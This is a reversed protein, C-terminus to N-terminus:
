LCQSNYAAHVDTLVGAGDARWFVHATKLCIWGGAVFVSANPGDRRRWEPSFKEGVLYDVLADESSGVPFRARIRDDLGRSFGAEDGPLTAVIEPLAGTGGGARGIAFAGGVLLLTVAAWIAGRAWGTEVRVIGM